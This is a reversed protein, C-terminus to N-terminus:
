AENKNYIRKCYQIHEVDDEDVDLYRCGETDAKVPNESSIIKGIPPDFPTGGALHSGKQGIAGDILAWNIKRAANIDHIAKEVDGNHVQSKKYSQSGTPSGPEIANYADSLQM